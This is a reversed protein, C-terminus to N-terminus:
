FIQVPCVYFNRYRPCRCIGYIIHFVHCRCLSYRHHCQLPLYYSAAVPQQQRPAAIDRRSEIPFLVVAGVVDM